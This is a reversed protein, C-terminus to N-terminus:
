STNNSLLYLAFFGRSVNGSSMIFRFANVANGSGRGQYLGSYNIITANQTFSTQGSLYGVDSPEYMYDIYGMARSGSANNIPGSLVHNTTSNTNTFTTGNYAFVNCGAEYASSLWNVGNDVSTQLRLSSGNTAPIVDFWVFRYRTGTGTIVPINTFDVSTVSAVFSAQVCVSPLYGWDVLNNVGMNRLFLYKEGTAAITNTVTNLFGM